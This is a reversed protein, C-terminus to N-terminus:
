KAKGKELHDIEARRIRTASAALGSQERPPLRTQFSLFVGALTIMLGIVHYSHVPEHLFTAALGITLVPIISMSFGAVNSGVKSIANDWCIYAALSPFLALYLVSLAASQSVKPAGLLFSEVLVIPILCLTGLVAVLFLFLLGRLGAPRQKLRVSYFAWLPLSLIILIDGWNVQLKMLEHFDGKTVIWVIGVFSIPIGLLQLRRSRESGSLAGFLVIVVPATANILSANIATTYSLGFYVVGQYLTVGSLALILLPLFNERVISFRDKRALDFFFPFLVLAVIFWRCFTLTFPHVDVVVSRGVVINGAWFLNAAFLLLVSRWCVLM